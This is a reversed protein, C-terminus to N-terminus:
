RSWHYTRDGEKQAIEEQKDVEFQVIFNNKILSGLCEQNETPAFASYNEAATSTTNFNVFNYDQNKIQIIPEM